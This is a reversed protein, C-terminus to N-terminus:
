NNTHLPSNHHFDPHKLTTWSALFCHGYTVHMHSCPLRPVSNPGGERSIAPSHWTISNGERLLQLSSSLSKHILAHHFCVEQPPLYEWGWICRVITTKMHSYSLALLCTAKRAYVPTFSQRGCSKRHTVSTNSKHNYSLFLSLCQAVLYSTVLETLTWLSLIMTCPMVGNILMPSLANRSM